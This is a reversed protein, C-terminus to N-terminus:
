ERQKKKKQLQFTKMYGPHLFYVTLTFSLYRTFTTTNAAALYALVFFHPFPLREWVPGISEGLLPFRCLPPFFHLMQFQSFCLEVLSPCYKRSFLSFVCSKVLNFFLSSPQIVELSVGM